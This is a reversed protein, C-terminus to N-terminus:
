YKFKCLNVVNTLIYFDFPLSNRHRIGQGLHEEFFHPRGRNPRGINWPRSAALEPARAEGGKEGLNFTKAAPRRSSPRSRPLVDAEDGVVAPLPEDGVERDEAQASCVHRPAAVGGLLLDAIDQVEALAAEGYEFVLLLQGFYDRVLRGHGQQRRGGRRGARPRPSPARRLKLARRYQGERFQLRLARRARGSGESYSSLTASPRRSSSAVM